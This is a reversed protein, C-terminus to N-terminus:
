PLYGFRMMQEKHADAIRKVQGATLVGALVKPGSRTLPLLLRELWRKGDRASCVVASFPRRDNNDCLPWDKIALCSPNKRRAVSLHDARMPM